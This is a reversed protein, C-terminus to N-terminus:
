AAVTRGTERDFSVLLFEKYFVVHILLVPLSVALLVYTDGRTIGLINGMLFLDHM